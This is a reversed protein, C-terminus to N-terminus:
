ALSFVGDARALWDLGRGGRLVRRTELRQFVRLLGRCPPLWEAERELLRWFVVGYRRLLTMAVHELVEPAFQQRRAPSAEAAAVVPQRSVLAWRGADDMGGILASSRVRRSSSYASRKAVPNLLAWLGAVSDSHVLGAAVMGGVANDVEMRLGSVETLVGDFVM